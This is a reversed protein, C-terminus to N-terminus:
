SPLEGDAPGICALAHIVIIEMTFQTHTHPTHRNQNLCIRRHRRRRRGHTLPVSVFAGAARGPVRSAIYIYSGDQRCPIDAGSTGDSQSDPRSGAAAACVFTVTTYIHFLRACHGHIRHTYEGGGASSAFCVCESMPKASVIIYRVMESIFHANVRMFECIVHYGCSYADM